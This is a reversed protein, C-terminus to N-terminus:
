LMTQILNSFNRDCQVQMEGASSFSATSIEGDVNHRPLNRCEGLYLIRAQLINNCTSVKVVNLWKVLTSLIFIQLKVIIVELLLM